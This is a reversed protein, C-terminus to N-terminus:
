RPCVGVLRARGGWRGHSWRLGLFPDGLGSESGVDGLRRRGVASGNREVDPVGADGGCHELRQVVDLHDRAVGDVGLERRDVGAHCRPRGPEPIGRDQVVGGASSDPFGDRSDRAFALHRGASPDDRAQREPEPAGEEVLLVVSEPDGTRMSREGGARSISGLDRSQHRLEDGEAVAEGVVLRDHAPRDVGVVLLHEGQDSQDVGGGPHPGFLYGSDMLNEVFELSPHRM